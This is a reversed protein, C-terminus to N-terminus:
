RLRNGRYASCDRAFRGGSARGEPFGLDCRAAVAKWHICQQCYPHSDDIARADAYLQEAESVADELATASLPLDLKGTKTKIRVRWGSPAEFLVMRGAHYRLSAM